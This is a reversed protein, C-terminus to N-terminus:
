LILIALRLVFPAVLLIVLSAACNCVVGGGVGRHPDPVGLLVM